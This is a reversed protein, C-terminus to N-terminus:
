ARTASKPALDAQSPTVPPTGNSCSLTKSDQEGVKDELM